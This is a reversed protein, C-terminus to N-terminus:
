QQSLAESTRADRKAERQKLWRSFYLSVVFLVASAALAWPNLVSPSIDGAFVDALDVSAGALVFTTTGPLSGLATALIFPRYSIKLFGSLYNVLDYPLYVLRMILITTFANRRLRHAYGAIVGETESEDIMDQGLIRGLLYAVSASTNAAIITFVVGWVPGWIAGGLLTIVVASFFALPRLAYILVYFFPGAPSELLGILDRLTSNFAFFTGYTTRSYAFFSGVITVWIIVAIIKQWHRGWFSTHAPPLPTDITDM